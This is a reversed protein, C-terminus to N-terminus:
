RKAFNGTVYHKVIAYVGFGENVADNKVIIQLRKYNKVKRNFPIEIPGDNANFTFQSFDIDSWAFIDMTGSAAEWGVADADTRFLVKAGSRAYPKLTVANGKKLLTKLVMPDGDDDMCSSWVAEIAAGDDNYQNM